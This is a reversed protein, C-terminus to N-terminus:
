LSHIARLNFLSQPGTCSWRVEFGGEVRRKMWNLSALMLSLSSPYPKLLNFTLIICFSEPFLILNFSTHMFCSHSNRCSWWGSREEQPAESLFGAPLLPIEELNPLWVGSYLVCFPILSPIIFLWLRM